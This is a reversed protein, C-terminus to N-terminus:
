NVFSRGWGVAAAAKSYLLGYREWQKKSKWFKKKNKWRLVVMNKYRWKRFAQRDKLWKSYNKGQKCQIFDALEAYEYAHCSGQEKMICDLFAKGDCFEKTEVGVVTSEIRDM